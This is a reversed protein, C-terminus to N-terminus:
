TWFQKLKFIFRFYVLPIFISLSNEWLAKAFERSMSLYGRLGRNSLGGDRMTVVEENFSRCTFKHKLFARLCWEYDGCIKYDRKFYGSSQLAYKKVIMGPHPPMMGLLLMAPRFGLAAIRRFPRTEDSSRVISVGFLGIELQKDQEFPRVMSSLAGDHAFWDDSNLFVILNGTARSIGKNMADYVGDDKESIYQLASSYKEIIGLTGDSSGGDIIIHEICAYDQECVSVISREITDASNFCVTVVSVKMRNDYQRKRPRQKKIKRQM